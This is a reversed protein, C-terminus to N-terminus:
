LVEMEDGADMFPVQDNGIAAIRDLEAQYERRIDGLTVVKRKGLGNGFSGSSGNVGHSSAPPAETAIWAQKEDVCSLVNILMLYQRTIVTDLVDDGAPEDADARQRLKHIRDLLIAAAGRYDNRKIRWAYLIQHWPKDTVIDVADHCRHALIDDVANELNPFPLEVLESNHLGDCMKEILIRLLSRQLARDAMTVLATHALDFHSISVAGHFLRSQVETRFAPGDKTQRNVFQLALQAFEVVYTYAKHKEYLSVVHAYYQPMGAHLLRWETDDLLGSSHRDPNKTPRSLGYAAKKFYTAATSYDKLGLHVRGQVYTSFPDHDCFPGLEAALDPRSQCLLACQFLHPPLQIDSDTACVNSAIDTISSPTGAMECTGLLHGVLGELATIVQSEEASRKTLAPSGGSISGSRDAKPLPVLLQTKALWRVLELRQLCKILYRYVTGIDMRHHLADEPVDFEFEMHVLLILQSFCVNWQLEVTEQIARVAIKRGFDTLPYPTQRQSDAPANMLSVTRGYLETSVASFNQGLADTVQACDDDSTQRWFAAKDSFYQIREDDTKTSDELLECRLVANCTQLMSHSFIDIFNLGTSILLSVNEYGELRAGPNHCIQELRSCERISSLGDACAVWPQGSTPEYSLSLAEGRQKDLEVVLRYFRRWQMDNAGRFGEYNMGGSASSSRELSSTSGLVSCISEALGKSTRASSDKALGLGQEYITLATELTAKTFRGPALILQLWKETADTADGPGSSQATPITNDCYVGTWGNQWADDVEEFTFALYHVRYTMNNKWLVWLRTGHPGDHAVTFDALTWVDSGAPPPPILQSDKFFPNIAVGGEDPDAELKWFKFEGAGVPSYTVCLRKGETEGVVKILNCQSPDITWKGIEQPNREANLIDQTHLIQGNQLNWIRLRHDLCVTFLFSAEQQGLDTTAVSSAASLDMNVNGHKVTHSGKLFGRFSQGWGKSNYQTERWPQRFSDHGKNRDLKLIGGDHTTVVLLNDDAAILRHAVKIGLAASSHVKCLDAIDAPSPRRFHEPKLTITFFQNSQDVVFVSLADHDPSDALAVCSPRIPQTFRLNVVLNADPSKKTKCVDICRVSLLTDADLVRWLFSRPAAHHKRHYISSAVACNRSRFLKEDEDPPHPRRQGRATASGSPLKVNVILASSPAELNLRTEKHLYLPDRSSM